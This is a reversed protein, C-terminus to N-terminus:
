SLSQNTELELSKKQKNYHYRMAFIILAYTAFTILYGRFNSSVYNIAGSIGAVRVFYGRVQDYSIVDDSAFVGDITTILQQTQNDFSVVREVWFVDSGFKGYIVVLDGIKLDDPEFRRIVVVTANAEFGTDTLIIEKDIPVAVVTAQGFLNLGRNDGVLLTLLYIIHIVALIAIAWYVVKLIKLNRRRKELPSLQKQHDLFAKIKNKYKKILTL